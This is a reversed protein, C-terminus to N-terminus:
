VLNRPDITTPCKEEEENTENPLKGKNIWKGNVTEWRNGKSDFVWYGNPYLKAIESSSLSGTVKPTNKM